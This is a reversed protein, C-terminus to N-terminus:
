EVLAPESFKGRAKQQDPGGMPLYTVGVNLAPMERRTVRSFMQRIQTYVGMYVYIHKVLSLYKKVWDDSM